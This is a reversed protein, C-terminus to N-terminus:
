VGGNVIGSGQEGRRRQVTAKTSREYLAWSTVLLIPIAVILSTYKRNLAKFRPDRKLVEYPLDTAKPPAPPARPPFKSPVTPKETPKQPTTRPAPESDTSMSAHPTQGASAQPPQQPEPPKQLSIKSTPLPSASLMSSTNPRGPTAPQTLKPGAGPSPSSPALVSAPRKSRSWVPQEALPPETFFDALFVSKTPKLLTLTPSHTKSTAPQKPELASITPLTGAHTSEKPATKPNDELSDPAKSSPKDREAKVFANAQELIRTPQSQVPSAKVSEPAADPKEAAVSKLLRSKSGPPKKSSLLPLADNKTGRTETWVADLGKRTENLSSANKRTTRPSRKAKVVLPQPEEIIATTEALVRKPRGRKKIVEAASDDMFFFFRIQTPCHFTCFADRREGSNSFM